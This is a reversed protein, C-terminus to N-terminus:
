NYPFSMLSLKLALKGLKLAIKGLKLALKGLKLALKGLKLALKGLKLALQDQFTVKFSAQKQQKLSRNRAWCIASSSFMFGTDDTEEKRGEEEVALLM